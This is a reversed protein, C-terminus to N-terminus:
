VNTFEDFGYIQLQFEYDDYMRLYRILIIM